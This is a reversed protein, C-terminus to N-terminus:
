PHGVGVAGTPQPQYQGDGSTVHEGDAPFGVCGVCVVLRSGQWREGGSGLAGDLLDDASRSM